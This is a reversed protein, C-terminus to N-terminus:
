LASVFPPAPPTIREVPTGASLTLFFSPLLHGQPLIVDGGDGRNLQLFGIDVMSSTWLLHTDEM